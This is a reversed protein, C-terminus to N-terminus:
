STNNRGNTPLVGASALIANVQRSLVTRRADRHSPISGLKPVPRSILAPQLQKSCDELRDIHETVSFAPRLEPHEEGVRVVRAAGEGWDLTLYSNYVENIMRMMLQSPQLHVASQVTLPVTLEVILM